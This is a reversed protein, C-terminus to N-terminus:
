IIVGKDKWAWNKVWLDYAETDNKLDSLFSRVREELKEDDRSYHEEYVENNDAILYYFNNSNMGKMYALHQISQEYALAEYQSSKRKSDYVVGRHVFDAIGYVMIGCVSCQNKVQRVCDPTLLEAFTRANQLDNKGLLDYNEMDPTIGDLFDCILSEFQKGQKIADTEEIPKKSLASLYDARAKEKMREGVYDVGIVEGKDNVIDKNEYIDFNTDKWYIWSSYLSPTIYLM